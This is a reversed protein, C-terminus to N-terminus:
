TPPLMRTNILKEFRPNGHLRALNPDLRLYQPTYIPTGLADGAQMEPHSIATELLDDAENARDFLLCLWAVGRGVAFDRDLTRCTRQPCPSQADAATAGFV